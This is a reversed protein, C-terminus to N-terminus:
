TLSGGSGFEVVTVSNKGEREFCGELGPQYRFNRGYSFSRRSDLSGTPITRALRFGTASVLEGLQRESWERGGTLALMSLDMVHSSSFAPEETMIAEIVLLKVGFKAPAPCSLYSDASLRHKL